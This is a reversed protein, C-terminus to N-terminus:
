GGTAAPEQRQAPRVAGCTQMDLLVIDFKRRTPQACTCAVGALAGAPWCTATTGERLGDMVCCWCPSVASGRSADIMTVGLLAAGRRATASEEALLGPRGDQAFALEGIARFGAKQIGRASAVNEPANIIWFRLNHLGERQLVGHLIRPYVGLGRWTPLTKFDWLYRDESTGRFKVALEGITAEGASVWGYAVPTGVMRAVYCRNGDLMRTEIEHVSLGTLSTLEAVNTIAETDLDALPELAPLADGPWRTWLAM